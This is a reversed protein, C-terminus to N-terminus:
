LDGKLEGPCVLIKGWLTVCQLALCPTSVELTSSPRHARGQGDLRRRRSRTAAFSSLFEEQAGLPNYKNGESAKPRARDQRARTKRSLCAFKTEMFDTEGLNESKV